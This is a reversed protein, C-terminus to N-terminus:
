KGKRKRSIAVGASTDEHRPSYASGGPFAPIDSLRGVPPNDPRTLTSMSPVVLPQQQHALTLSLTKNTDSSIHTSSAASQSGAKHSNHHKHKRKHKRSDSTHGKNRSCAVDTHEGTRVSSSSSLAGAHDAMLAKSFDTAETLNNTHLQRSFKNATVHM